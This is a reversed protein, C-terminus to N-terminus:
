LWMQFPCCIVSPDWACNQLVLKSELLLHGSDASFLKLAEIRLMLGSRQRGESTGGDPVEAGPPLHLIPVPLCGVLDDQRPIQTSVRLDPRGSGWDSSFAMLITPLIEAGTELLVVSQKCEVPNLAVRVHSRWCHCARLVCRKERKPNTGIHELKFNATWHSATKARSIEVM